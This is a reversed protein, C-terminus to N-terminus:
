PTARDVDMLRHLDADALGPREHNKILWVV